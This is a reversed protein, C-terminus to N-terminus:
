SKQKRAWKVHRQVAEDARLAPLTSLRKALTVEDYLRHLAGHCLRCLDIGEQLQEKTYARRYANRRHLKRPILHHFTLLRERGCLTCPGVTM